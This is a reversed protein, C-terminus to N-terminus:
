VALPADAPGTPDRDVVVSRLEAEAVPALVMHWLGPTALVGWGLAWSLLLGLSAADANVLGIV